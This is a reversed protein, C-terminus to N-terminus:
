GKARAHASMHWVSHSMHACALGYDPRRAVV